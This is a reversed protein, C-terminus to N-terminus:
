KVVLAEQRGTTFAEATSATMVISQIQEFMVMGHRVVNLNYVDKNM